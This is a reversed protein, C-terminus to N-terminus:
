KSSPRRAVQRWAVNRVLPSPDMLLAPAVEAARAAGPGAALAEVLVARVEGAARLDLVRALADEVARPDSALLPVLSRRVSEMTPAFDPGGVCAELEAVATAVDSPGPRAAIASPPPPGAEGLVVASALVEEVPAASPSSGVDSNQLAAPCPGLVTAPAAVAVRRPPRGKWAPAFAVVGALWLVGFVMTAAPFAIRM